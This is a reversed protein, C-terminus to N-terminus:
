FFDGLSDVGLSSIPFHVTDFSSTCIGIFVHPFTCGQSYLFHLDLYCQSKVESGHSHSDDLVCVVIFAPSSTHTPGKICQEHSHLSTCGSHFTNHHNRLFALLLGVMHDLLEVGPCIDLPFYFDTSLLSMQVGMNIAVSSMKPLGHFLGLHGVFISYVDVNYLSYIDHRNNMWSYAGSFILFYPAYEVMSLFLIIDNAPSYISSSIVM